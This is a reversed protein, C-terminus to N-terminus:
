AQQQSARGTGTLWRKPWASSRRHDLQDLIANVHRATEGRDYGSALLFDARRRKEAAPMQKAVISELREVTMGTRSLARQRQLYDSCSVVVVADMRTEAGTEFLLPVDLLVRAAQIRSAESLFAIQADRVAPHVLAELQKLARDNGLVRAGLKRRDVGGDPRLCGPFRADVRDPLPGGAAFLRHVAADSDFVPVGFRAFMRAAHSKGMAISGTLGVVQM